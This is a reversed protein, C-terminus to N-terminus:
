PLATSGVVLIQHDGYADFRTGAFPIGLVDGFRKFDELSPEAFTFSQSANNEVHWTWPESPAGRSLMACPTVHNDHAGPAMCRDVALIELLFDACLRLASQAAPDASARAADQLPCCCAQILNLAARDLLYSEWSASHFARPPLGLGRNRSNDCRQTVICRRDGCTCVYVATHTSSFM